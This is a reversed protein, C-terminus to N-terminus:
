ELLGRVQDASIEPLFESAGRRLARLIVDADNRPIVAVVPIAPAADAIAPLAKEQDAAVDILCLNCGNRVAHAAIEGPRPFEALSVVDRLGADALARRLLDPSPSVILPKWVTVGRLDASTGFLLLSRTLIRRRDASELRCLRRFVLQHPPPPSRPERALCVLGPRLRGGQFDDPPAGPYDLAPAGAPDPSQSRHRWTAPIRADDSRRLVPPDRLRPPDGYNDAAFVKRTTSRKAGHYANWYRM